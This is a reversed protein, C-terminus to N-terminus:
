SVFRVMTDDNRDLLVAIIPFRAIARTIKLGSNQWWWDESGILVMSTPLLQCNKQLYWKQNPVTTTSTGEKPTKSMIRDHSLTNKVIPVCKYTLDIHVYKLVYSVYM